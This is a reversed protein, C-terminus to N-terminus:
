ILIVKSGNRIDTDKILSNNDYRVGTDRNYMQNKNGGNYVGDSLEFIAKNLLKIVSGVKKSVPIYIDYSKEIEPVILEILVKNKMLRM